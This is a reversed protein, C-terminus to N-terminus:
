AFETLRGFRTSAVAPDQLRELPDHAMLDQVLRYAAQSLDPRLDSLPPSPAGNAIATLLRFPTSREFPLRGALAEYIVVGLSYLDSRITQPRGRVVEPALYEPSGIIESSRTVDVCTRGKVHGFDILTAQGESGIVINTPKVDRHVLEYTQLGKLASSVDRGLRYAAEPALPGEQLIEALTRGEALEMALFPRDDLVGAEYFRVLHPLRLGALTKIERRFRDPCVPEVQNVVPFNAAIRRVIQQRV